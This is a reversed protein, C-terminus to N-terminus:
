HAEKLQKVRNIREQPSPHSSLYEVVTSSSRLGWLSNEDKVNLQTLKEMINAFSQVPIHNDQLAQLAFADAEREFDRSYAMDALLTPLGIVADATDLDGTMFFIVVSVLSGQIARRTLHRHQLHGLEHFFVAILEDDNDALEIFKDTFVIDGNPLSFANAMNAARFIIQANLKPYQEIYPLFLQQIEAQRQASLESDDFITKDLIPLSSGLKQTMTDPLKFALSKSLAPLAFVFFAWMMAVSFIAAVIIMSLNSEVKYLLSHSARAGVGQVVSNKGTIQAHSKFARLLADVGDNDDSV